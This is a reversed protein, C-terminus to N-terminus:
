IPTRVPKGYGGSRVSSSNNICQIHNQATYSPTLPSNPSQPSNPSYYMTQSYCFTPIIFQKTNINETSKLENLMQKLEANNTNYM